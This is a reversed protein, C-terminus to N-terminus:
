EETENRPNPIEAAQPVSILLDREGTALDVKWIGVDEPALVDSNPNPIGVYGYGPRTDNSRRFDTSVAWSGDPGM